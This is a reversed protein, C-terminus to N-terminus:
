GRKWARRQMCFLLFFSLFICNPLEMGWLFLIKLYKSMELPPLHRSRSGHWGQGSIVPRAEMVQSGAGRRLPGAAAPLGDGRRKRVPEEWPAKRHSLGFPKPMSCLERTSEPHAAALLSFSGLFSVPVPEPTGGLVWSRPTVYRWTGWMGKQPLASM